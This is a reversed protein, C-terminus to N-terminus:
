SPTKIWSAIVDAFQTTLRGHAVSDAVLSQMELVTYLPVAGISIAPQITILSCIQQVQLGVSLARKVFIDLADPKTISNTVLLAPHGVDYAGVLDHVAADGSGRSYVLPIQTQQSMVIGLPLAEATCVLREVGRTYGSLLQAALHLIRPYSPLLELNLRFPASQTNNRFHGFQIIGADLLMDGFSDQTSM